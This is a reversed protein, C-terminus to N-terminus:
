WHEPPIMIWATFSGSGFHLVKFQWVPLILLFAM